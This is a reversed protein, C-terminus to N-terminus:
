ASDESLRALLSKLVRADELFAHPADERVFELLAWHEGGAMAVRGLYRTWAEEGQALPLREAASGGWHFVHVNALWPLIAELGALAEEVAMGVAPQWYTRLNKHAVQELLARASAATDTLTKGHFEYAVMVGAQAALEAIRRSDEAVQERYAADAEASGHKGAWVRVTPAQLALATELVREFPVPEGHGVRYYSGYSAVRLGAEVTMKHVERARQLDGHPVHIDGGWEIGKLGAEQVLRVIEEPALARFTVSVLGSHLM